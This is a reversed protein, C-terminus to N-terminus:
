QLLMKMWKAIQNFAYLKALSENLKFLTAWYSDVKTVKQRAYWNERSFGHVFYYYIWNKRQWFAGILLWILFTILIYTLCIKNVDEYLEGRVLMVDVYLKLLNGAMDFFTDTAFNEQLSFTVSVLVCVKELLSVM